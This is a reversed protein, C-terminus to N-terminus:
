TPRRSRPALAPRHDPFPFQLTRLPGHPTLRFWLFLSFGPRLKARHRPSRACRQFDALTFRLRLMILRRDPRAARLAASEYRILDAIWNPLPAPPASGAPHLLHDSFRLADDSHRRPSLLPATETWARFRLPFQRGLARRTLPLLKATDALRKAQLSKAFRTIEDRPLTGAQPLAAPSLSLQAALAAPQTFFQERVRADTYLHALLRQTEALGM